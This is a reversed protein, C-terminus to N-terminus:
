PSFAGFHAPVAGGRWPRPWCSSAAAQLLQGASASDAPIRNSNSAVAPRNSLSALVWTVAGSHLQRM